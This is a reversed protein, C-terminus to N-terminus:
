MREPASVNLLSLTEKLTINTAKVLGLRASRLNGEASLVPCKEYFRHFDDALSLAYHSLQHVELSQSVEEVIETLSVIKKILRLEEPASLLPYNPSSPLLPTKELINHSRAFAYQVYFCLNKESEQKALSLDFDLHTSASTLLMFFNFADKGVESLVEQATVFHGARKSMKVVEEGRKVRVYQYLIVKFRAVDFGLSSIAAQLRPVHGHHNSGFVDVVLAPDDEFKMKHYAIDNAFYTLQGNSKVLVCERDELFEDRPAFWLAGSLKKVLKNKTLFDIVELTRGSNLFSSEQVVLDFKIGLSQAIKITEKHLKEVSFDALIKVATDEKELLREGFKEAAEQALEKVYDGKYGDEPFAEDSKKFLDKYWYFVSKGLREVQGGIDNEIYERLVNFGVKELCRCLTEGIPGGRANGVHLPGTPNASIYEVRATLGGGIKPYYLGERALIKSLQYYYYSPSLYFNLFGGVSEVKELYGTKPFNAEIQKAVESPSQKIQSALSFSVSTSYDGYNEKTQREVRLGQIPYGSKVFVEKLKETLIQKM